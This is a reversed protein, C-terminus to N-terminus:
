ASTNCPSDALGATRAVDICRRAATLDGAGRHALALKQHAVAWDEPESLDDFERVAALMVRTAYEHDGEKSM